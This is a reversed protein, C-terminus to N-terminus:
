LDKNPTCSWRLNRLEVKKGQWPTGYLKNEKGFRKFEGIMIEKIGDWSTLKGGNGNHFDSPNLAFTQWQPGGALKLETVHNDIAIIFTNAKEARLDIILKADATPAQYESLTFLPKRYRHFNQDQTWTKWGNAFSELVEPRKLTAIVGTTVEWNDWNTSATLSLSQASRKQKFRQLKSRYTGAQDSLSLLHKDITLGTIEQKATKWEESSNIRWPNKEAGSLSLGSSLLLASFSTLIKMYNM